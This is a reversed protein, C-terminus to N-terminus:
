RDLPSTVGKAGKNLVHTYIETTAVNQHGLLEQLTRIDTGSLLLHTAFSHRLTHCSAHKAIGACKIANKVDRSLTTQHRHHRRLEGTAPDATLRTGPFIYQWAWQRAANPEKREYANPLAVRGYGQALDNKHLQKVRRIHARLPGAIARPLVTVRDKRGKGQRVTIEGREIDIDKVRLTCCETLRLGAGYLLSAMLWSPGVLENLVSHVEDPTLVVPVRPARHALKIGEIWGLPNDLVYRYLFLLACKAQNQTSASVHKKEVLWSLFQQVQKEGLQAPHQDNHFHVFRKVWSAYAQQTRPSRHLASLAQRLQDLLRAPKQHPTSQQPGARAPRPRYPRRPERVVRPICPHPPDASGRQRYPSTSEV